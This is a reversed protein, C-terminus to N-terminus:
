EDVHSHCATAQLYTSTCNNRDLWVIWRQSPFNLVRHFFPLSPGLLLTATNWNSTCNCNLSWTRRKRYLYRILLFSTISTMSVAACHSMITTPNLPTDQMLPLSCASLTCNRRTRRESQALVIHRFHSANLWLVIGYEDHSLNPSILLVNEMRMQVAVIRLIPIPPTQWWPTYKLLVPQLSCPLCECTMINQRSAPAMYRRYLPLLLLLHTRM